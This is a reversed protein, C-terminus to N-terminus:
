KVYLSEKATAKRPPYPPGGSLGYTEITRRISAFQASWAGPSYGGGLVMVVPIGRRVCADIVIADRQVIGDPTMALHALPDGALTDVGAQLFVLDPRSREFVDPLHAALIRLYQADDTGRLNYIQDYIEVSVADPAPAGGPGDSAANTSPNDGLGSEDRDENWETM